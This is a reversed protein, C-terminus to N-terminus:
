EHVHNQLMSRKIFRAILKANTVFSQSWSVESWDNASDSPVFFECPIMVGIILPMDIGKAQFDSLYMFDAWVYAIFINNGEAWRVFMNLLGFDVTLENM